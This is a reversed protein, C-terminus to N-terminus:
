GKDYGAKEMAEDSIRGGDYARRMKGSPKKKGLVKNAKADITAKASASLNGANVQQTARAKANAAHAADPIPYSRGPGAFTSSPLNKRAATTLVAMDIEWFFLGCQSAVCAAKARQGCPPSDLAYVVYPRWRDTLRMM